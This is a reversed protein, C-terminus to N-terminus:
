PSGSAAPRASALRPAAALLARTYPQRPHRLVDAVPGCEVIRGGQMVAVADALRAAVGPDHTIFLLTRRHGSRLAPLLDLLELRRVADLASLPEDCVVFEPDLVLVRAIAVRQREGGSLEHPYREALEGGLGVESLAEAVREGRTGRTGIRQAVLPDAVIARVRMRPNLSAGADQFIMQARRHFSRLGAGRLGAVPLGAFRVEGGSLRTMGLLAKGLTTKGSGSEGLLAVTEGAHILLDVGGVAPQRDGGCPYRVELQRAEVLASGASPNASAPASAIM